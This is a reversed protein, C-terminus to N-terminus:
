SALKYGFELGNLESATFPASTDPNTEWIANKFAYTQSSVSKAASDHDASSRLVLNISRTGVDDNRALASVQVAKVTGTNSFNACAFTDKDGVVNDSNYDTDGNTGDEDINQYNSGASPTWQTTTGAGSATQYEIHVPGLIDGAAIGDSIFLDDWQMTQGGRSRLNMRDASANGGNRTDVGTASAVLAGDFYLYVAGASDDITFQLEYYHWANASLGAAYTALLTGGDAVAGGRCVDVNGSNNAYVVLHVTSGDMIRFAENNLAGPRFACGCSGSARAAGFLRSLGTGFDTSALNRGSNTRGNTTALTLSATSGTWNANLNAVTTGYKDFSELFEIAM